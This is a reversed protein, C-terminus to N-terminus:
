LLSTLHGLAWAGGAFIAATLLGLAIIGIPRQYWHKTHSDDNTNPDAQAKLATGHTAGVYSDTVDLEGGDMEIGVDRGVFHSGVITIKSM